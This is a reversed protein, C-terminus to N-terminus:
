PNRLVIAVLTQMIIRIDAILSPKKAYKLDISLKRPMIQEIYQTEWDDGQLLDEENRYVLSAPSTIGPRVDLVGRQEQNYLAVYRPSEPRPGVFSMTGNVVNFLQPLEDLKNQRLFRGIPTIRSDGKITVAGGLKDANVVMTRFKFVSINKGGKGIRIATYIIPGESTVRVVIAIVLLIPSLLIIGTTGFLIDFVRKALM